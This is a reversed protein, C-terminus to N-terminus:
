ISIPLQGGLAVYALPFSIVTLFTTLAKEVPGGTKIGFGIRKRNGGLTAAAWPIGGCLFDGALHSGWAAAAAMLFWDLDPPMVLSLGFLVAGVIEPMHTPGRHGGPIIKAMWGGQDVDPSWDDACMSSAVICGALVHQWGLDWRGILQEYSCIGLWTAQAAAQHGLRNM